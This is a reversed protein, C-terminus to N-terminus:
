DSTSVPVADNSGGVTRLSLTANNGEFDKWILCQDFYNSINVTAVENGYNVVIM